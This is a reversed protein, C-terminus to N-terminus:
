TPAPAWHRACVAPARRRRSGGLEAAHMIRQVGRAAAAAHEPRGHVVVVRRGPREQDRGAQEEREPEGTPAGWPQGSGSRPAGTCRHLMIVMCRHVRAVDNVHLPAGTSRMEGPRSKRCPSAHPQAM